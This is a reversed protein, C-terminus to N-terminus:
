LFVYEAAVGQKSLHPPLNTSDSGECEDRGRLLPKLKWWCFLPKVEAQFHSHTQLPFNLLLLLKAASCSHHRHCISACHRSGESSGGGSCVDGVLSISLHVSSPLLSVKEAKQQQEKRLVIEGRQNGGEKAFAPDGALRKEGGAGWSREHKYLPLLLDCHWRM